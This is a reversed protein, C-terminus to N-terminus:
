ISMDRSAAHGKFVLKGEPPLGSMVDMCGEIVVPFISRLVSGRQLLTMSGPVVRLLLKPMSMVMFGLTSTWQRHQCLGM